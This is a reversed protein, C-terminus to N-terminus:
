ASALSINTHTELATLIDTNAMCRNYVDAHLTITIPSTAEENNIMYLVSKVSLIPSSSVELDYKLKFRATILDISGAIDQKSNLKLTGLIHKITRLARVTSVFAGRLCQLNLIIFSKSGDSIGTVNVQTFGSFSRLAGFNTSFDAFGFYARLDGSPPFNSSAIYIKRIGDNTIDGIGNLYWYGAKHVVTKGYDGTYDDDLMDAWPTTKVIDEGTDNYEAGAAIYAYHMPDGSPTAPMFEKSQGQINALVINGNDKVTLTLAEQKSNIQTQLSTDAQTRTTAESEIQSDVYSKEAYRSLDVSPRFSGTREWSNNVWIYEDYTNGEESSSSLVLHIKNEDGSAPATPLSDVVKFITTDLTCSIKNDTIDIGTGAILADQKNEIETKLATDLKSKSISSDKVADPNLFTSM